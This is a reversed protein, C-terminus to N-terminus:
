PEGAGAEGKQLQILFYHGPEIVKDAPLPLVNAAASFAEDHRVFQLAKGTLPIATTGRNFLEVYDHTFKANTNGGAGYVQSIVLDAMTLNAASGDDDSSEQFCGVGVAAATMSAVALIALYKAQYAM